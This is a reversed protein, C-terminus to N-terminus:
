YGAEPCSRSYVDTDLALTGEEAIRIAGAMAVMAANDTCFEAAPINVSLGHQGAKEHLLRRLRPNAAVGGAAVINSIGHDIAAKITKGALVEVIAEQYSACIDALHSNDPERTIQSLYNALATKIGSFSFDYSNEELWARPFSIAEPNGKVALRSVVPGGPYDLGLIKAAKDFAEGAADDRSRGILRYETMSTMRYINSHGGSVILAIAPFLQARSGLLASCLHGAMHDIGVYPINRVYSLAKAFSLGVLLSGILGPGRTVAIADIDDLQLDAASLAQSVVVGINEIHKRSAIEPVVGGYRSHVAIQSNVINALLHRGDEM